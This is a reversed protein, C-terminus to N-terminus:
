LSFHTIPRLPVAPAGITIRPPGPGYPSSGTISPRFATVGRRAQIEPALVATNDLDPARVYRVVGDRSIYGDLVEFYAAAMRAICKGVVRSRLLGIRRRGRRDEDLKALIYRDTIAPDM